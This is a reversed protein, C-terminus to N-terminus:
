TSSHRDTFSFSPPIPKAATGSARSPDLERLEEPWDWDGEEVEAGSALESVDFTSRTPAHLGSNKLHGLCM